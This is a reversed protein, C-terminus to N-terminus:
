QTKVQSIDPSMQLSPLYEQQLFQIFEPGQFFIYSFMFVPFFFEFRLTLIYIESFKYKGAQSSDDKSNRCM